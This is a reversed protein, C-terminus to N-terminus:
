EIMHCTAFIDFVICDLIQINLINIQSMIANYRDCSKIQFYHSLGNIIIQLQLIYYWTMKHKGQM